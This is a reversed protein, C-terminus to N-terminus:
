LPRDQLERLLRKMGVSQCFKSLSKSYAAIKSAKLLEALQVLEGLDPEEGAQEGSIARVVTYLATMTEAAKCCLVAKGLQDPVPLFMLLQEYAAPTNKDSFIQNLISGLLRLQLNKVDPTFAKKTFFFFDSFKGYANEISPRSNMLEDEFLFISNRLTFLLEKEM